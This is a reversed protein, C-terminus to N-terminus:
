ENKGGVIRKEIRYLICDEQPCCGCSGCENACFDHIENLIANELNTYGNNSFEVGMFDSSDLIIDSNNYQEEVDELSGSITRKLTEIITINEM